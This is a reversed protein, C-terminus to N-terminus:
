LDNIIMQQKTVAVALKTKSDLNTKRLMNGIHWKVTEPSLYLVEAIRKYSYGEVVLRLVKLEAPTFEGSKATGIMVETPQDPYIRHGSVTQDMVKLLAESHGSKYWFSDVDAARARDIFSCEALGTVIIVRIGPYCRKIEEAAVLGSERRDTCIDMLILEIPERHCITVAEEASATVAVVEYRDSEEISRSMIERALPQDDVILVKIM